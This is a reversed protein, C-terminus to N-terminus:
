KETGWNGWIPHQYSRLFLTTKFIDRFYKQQQSFLVSYSDAITVAM